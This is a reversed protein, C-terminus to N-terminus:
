TLSISVLAILSSHFHPHILIILTIFIILISINLLIILNMRPLNKNNASRINTLQQFLYWAYTNTTPQLFFVFFVFFSKTAPDRPDQPQPWSQCDPLWSPSCVRLYSENDDDVFFSEMILIRMMNLIKVMMVMMMLVSFFLMLFHGCDDVNCSILGAEDYQDMGLAIHDSYAPGWQLPTYLM